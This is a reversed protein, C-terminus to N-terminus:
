LLQFTDLPVNFEVIGYRYFSSLWNFEAGIICLLKGSIGVLLYYHRLHLSVGGDHSM